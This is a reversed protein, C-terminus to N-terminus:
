GGTRQILAIAAVIVALISAAACGAMALVTWRQTRAVFDGLRTQVDEGSRDLVSLMDIAGRVNDAIEVLGRNINEMAEAIERVSRTTADTQQQILGLVEIQHESAVRIQGLATNLSSYQSKASESHDTALEVLQASHRNLNGLTDLGRPVQDQLQVLQRMQETQTEVRETIERLQSAVDDSSRRPAPSPKAKPSKPEATQAVRASQAADPAEAAEASSALAGAQTQTLDVVVPQKRRLLLNKLDTLLSM